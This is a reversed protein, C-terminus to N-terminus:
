QEILAAPVRRLKGIEKLIDHFPRPPRNVDADNGGNGKEETEDKGDCTKAVVKLIRFFCGGARCRFYFRM